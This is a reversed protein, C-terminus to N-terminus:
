ADMVLAGFAEVRKPSTGTGTTGTGRSLSVTLM